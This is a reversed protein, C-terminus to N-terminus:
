WRSCLLDSLNEGCNDIEIENFGGRTAERLLWIVLRGMMTDLPDDSPPENSADSFYERHEIAFTEECDSAQGQWRSLTRSGSPPPGMM